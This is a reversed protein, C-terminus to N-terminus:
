VSVSELSCILSLLITRVAKVDPGGNIPLPCFSLVVTLYLAPKNILIIPIANKTLKSM